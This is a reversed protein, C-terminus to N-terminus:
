ISHKHKTVHWIFKKKYLLLFFINICWYIWGCWKQGKSRYKLTMSMPLMVQDKMKMSKVYHFNQHYVSSTNRLGSYCCAYLQFACLNAPVGENKQFWIAKKLRNIRFGLTALGVQVQGTIVIVHQCNKSNRVLM